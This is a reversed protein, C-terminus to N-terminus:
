GGRVDMLEVEFNLPANPPIAPPSGQAGYAASAPIHLKRKEGVKMGPVAEDWGKIVKGAGVTFKFPTSKTRSSDFVQGNELTGVYHMSVEQGAKCVPGTGEKLTEYKVGSKTTKTEGLATPPAPELDAIVVSGTAPSTKGSEGLAQPKADDALEKQPLLEHYDIGPAATPVLNPGDCGSIGAGTAAAILVAIACM